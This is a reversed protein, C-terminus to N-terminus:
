KGGGGLAYFLHIVAQIKDIRDQALILRANFLSQQATLVELYNASSYRVLLRTKETAAELDGIQQEDLRIRGDATQWEALVDNVENGADLLAQEFHLTAEQQRAKAVKLNAINTGRNFLPATLQAIASSLWKGPNLIVGGGNNTWGLIGSLTLSPYFAARASNAAYFAEALSAEAQRVDPRNALLQLSIGISLSDSFYQSDLTARVVRHSPEKLLACLANETESINKDITLLSAELATRNARAQHVAVDNAKGAQVLTELTAITEDWNALTEQSIVLQEDLMLLTYYSEAITAVLRTQVAQEYARSQELTAAAGRRTNTMKGFLDIEWAATVDFNYIKKTEGNYRDISAQPNLSISPMYSLRANMLVAQAEETQLRAIGLDTNRELGAAILTQLHMDTFFERWSQTVITATDITIVTKRFLSDANVELEPRSYKNYIGCSSLFCAVVFLIEIRKM